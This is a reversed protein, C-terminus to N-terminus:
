PCKVGGSDSASCYPNSKAKTSAAKWFAQHSTRKFIGAMHFACFIECVPISTLFHFHGTLIHALIALTTLGGALVTLFTLGALVHVHALATLSFALRALVVTLRALHVALM